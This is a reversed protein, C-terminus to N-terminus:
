KTRWVRFAKKGSAIQRQSFVMTGKDRSKNKRISQLIAKTKESIEEPIHISDGIKMSLLAMKIPHVDRNTDRGRSMAPMPIGQEITLSVTFGCDHTMNSVSVNHKPMAGNRSAETYRDM